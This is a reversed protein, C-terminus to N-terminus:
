SFRVSYKRAAAASRLRTGLRESHPYPLKRLLVSDVVTFISANAAIGMSLTFLAILTFGPTKALMRLAYRVDQWVFRM